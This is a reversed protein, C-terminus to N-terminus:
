SNSPTPTPPCGKAVGAASRRSPPWARADATAQAFAGIAGGGVAPRSPRTPRGAPRDTSPAAAAASLPPTGQEKSGQPDKTKTNKAPPPPRRALPSAHGRIETACLRGHRSRWAGVTQRCQCPLRGHRPPPRAPQPLPLAEVVAGNGSWKCLSAPPAGTASSFALVIV